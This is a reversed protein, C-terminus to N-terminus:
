SITAGTQSIIVFDGAAASSSYQGNATALGFKAQYISGTIAEGLSVSPASGSLRLHSDATASYIELRRQPNVLGIGLRNNTTDWFLNNSGTQSTSGNWYAVQGASGSGTTTGVNWTRDASLDYTTGNITINRANTTPTSFGEPSLSRSKRFFGSLRTTLFLTRISIWIPLACTQVGTM